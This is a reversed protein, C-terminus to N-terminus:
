KRLKDRLKILERLQDLQVIKEESKEIFYDNRIKLRNHMTDAYDEGKICKKICPNQLFENMNADACQNYKEDDADIAGCFHEYGNYNEEVVKQLCGDCYKKMALEMKVKIPLFVILYLIFVSILISALIVSIKTIKDIDLNVM